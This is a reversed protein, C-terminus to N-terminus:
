PEIKSTRPIKSSRIAANIGERDLSFCYYSAYIMSFCLARRGM